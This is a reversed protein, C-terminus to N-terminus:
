EALQKAASVERLSSKEHVYNLEAVYLLVQHETDQM